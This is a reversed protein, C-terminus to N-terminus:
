EEEMHDVTVNTEEVTFEGDEDTPVENRNHIGEVHVHAVVLAEALLRQKDDEGEDFSEGVVYLDTVWDVDLSRHQELCARIAAAYFSILTATNEYDSGRVVPNVLLDYVGSVLGDGDAEPQEVLGTSTTVILPMGPDGGRLERMSPLRWSKVAPVDTPEWDFDTAVAALTAPLYTQLTTQAAAVVHHRGRIM